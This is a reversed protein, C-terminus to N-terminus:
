ISPCPLHLHHFDPMFGGQLVQGADVWRGDLTGLAKIFDAPVSLIHPNASNM